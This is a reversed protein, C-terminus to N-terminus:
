SLNTASIKLELYSYKEFEHLLKFSLFNMKEKFKVCASNELLDTNIVDLLIRVLLPAM